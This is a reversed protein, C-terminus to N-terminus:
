NRCLSEEQRHMRAAQHQPCRRETVSPRVRLSTPGFWRNAGFGDVRPCVTVKVAATVEGPPVGVPLTVNLVPVVKMPLADNFAPTAVIVVDVRGRLVRVNVPVYLPFTLKAPLTPDVDCVTHIKEPHFGRIAIYDM